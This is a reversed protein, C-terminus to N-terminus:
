LSIQVLEPRVVFGSCDQKARGKAYLGVVVGRRDKFRLDSEDGNVVPFGNWTAPLNKSAFVVAVNVGNQLSEMCHSANVESHSFTLSYNPLTRLWPKPLKTYDYFDVDPFQKAM